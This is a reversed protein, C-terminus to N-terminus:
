HKGLIVGSVLFFFAVVWARDESPMLYLFMEVNDTLLSILVLTVVPFSVAMLLALPSSVPSCSTEPWQHTHIM